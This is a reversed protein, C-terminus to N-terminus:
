PHPWIARSISRLQAQIEIQCTRYFIFIVSLATFIHSPFPPSDLIPFFNTENDAIVRKAKVRVNTPQPLFSSGAGGGGGGAGAAGAGSAGAGAPSVFAESGELSAAGAGSFPMSFFSSVFVLYAIQRVSTSTVSFPSPNSVKGKKAIKTRLQPITALSKLIVRV